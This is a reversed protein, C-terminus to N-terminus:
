GWMTPDIGLIGGAVQNLGAPDIATRHRPHRSKDRLSVQYNNPDAASIDGAVQNTLNTLGAQYMTPDVISIGGADKLRPKRRHRGDVSVSGDMFSGLLVVALLATLLVKGKFM